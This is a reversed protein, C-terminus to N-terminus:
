KDTKSYYESFLISIGIVFMITSVICPFLLLANETLATGIKGQDTIWHTLQSGYITASILIGIYALTSSILLAIGILTKKLSVEKTINDKKLVDPIEILEENCDSCIKYGEQYECKCKPCTLM